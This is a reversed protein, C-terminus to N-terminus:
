RRSKGRPDDEPLSMPRSHYPPAVIYCFTQMLVGVLPGVWWIWQDLIAILTLDQKWSLSFLTGKYDSRATAFAFCRAPNMSAGTYGSILGSSAFSVLGLTCGVFLPGLRPGFM